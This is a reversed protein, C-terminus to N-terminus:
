YHYCNSIGEFLPLSGAQYGIDEDHADPICLVLNAAKDEPRINPQYRVGYHPATGIPSIPQLRGRRVQFKDREAALSLHRPLM